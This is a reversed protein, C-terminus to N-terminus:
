RSTLRFSITIRAISSVANKGAKAPVFQAKTAARVAAADLDDHGSSEVVKAASVRGKETINLELTVDGEVGRKRAAVPYDPRITKLPRPQADIQAQKPAEPAPERAIHDDRPLIPPPQPEPPSPPPEPEPPLPEPKPSPQPEPPPPVPEPEPPPPPPEPQPEPPPPEPEPKPPPEPEPPPPPVAPADHEEKAFSLEVASLDLSPLEIAPTHSCWFALAAAALCHAILSFVIAKICNTM